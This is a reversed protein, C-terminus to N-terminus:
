RCKKRIILRHLHILRDHGQIRCFDQKALQSTLQWAEIMNQIGFVSSHSGRSHLGSPQFDLWFGSIFLLVSEMKLNPKPGLNPSYQFTVFLRALTLQTHILSIYCNRLSTELLPTSYTTKM